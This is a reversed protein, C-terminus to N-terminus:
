RVGAGALRLLRASNFKEKKGAGVEIRKFVALGAPRHILTCEYPKGRLEGSAQLEELMALTQAPLRRATGSSAPSGEFGYTVLAACRIAALPEERFKLDLLNSGGPSSEISAVSM